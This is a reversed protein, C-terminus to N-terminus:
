FRVKPQLTSRAKLIVRLYLHLSTCSSSTNIKVLKSSVVNKKMLWIIKELSSVDIYAANIYDHECDVGGSISKLVVRHDDDTGFPFGFLSYSSRQTVTITPECATINRFRNLPRNASSKGIITQHDGEGSPLTQSWLVIVVSM